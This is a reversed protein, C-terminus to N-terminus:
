EYEPITFNDGSNSILDTDDGEFFPNDDFTGDIDPSLTFPFVADDWAFATELATCNAPDAYAPVATGDEPMQVCFTGPIDDLSSVNSDIKFLSDDGAGYSGRGISKTVTVVGGSEDYKTVTFDGTGLAPNGDADLEVRGTIRSRSKFVVDDSTDFSDDVGNYVTAQTYQLDLYAVTIGEEEQEGYTSGVVSRITVTDGRTEAGETNDSTRDSMQVVRVVGTADIGYLLTEDESVSQCDFLRDDAAGNSIEGYFAIDLTDGEELAEAGECTVDPDEAFLGDVTQAFQDLLVRIKTVVAFGEDPDGFIDTLVYSNDADLYTDWEGSTGDALAKLAPSESPNADSETVSLVLASAASDIRSGIDTTDIEGADTTGTETGGVGGEGGQCGAFALWFIVGLALYTIKM